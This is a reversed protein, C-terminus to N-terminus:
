KDQHFGSQLAELQTNVMQAYLQTRAYHTLAKGWLAMQENVTAGEVAALSAFAARDMGYEYELMAKDLMKELSQNISYNLYPAKRNVEKAFLNRAESYFGFAENKANETVKAPSDALQLKVYEGTAGGPIGIGSPTGIGFYAILDAPFLIAQSVSSPFNNNLNRSGPDNRHWEKTDPDYWDDSRYMKKVFEFDIEGKEAAASAYEFATAYRYKSGINWSWEEWPRNYSQMASNVLHNTQVLFPAKEGSDGPKRIGYEKANGEFVAINGAADGMNVTGMVGGRPSSELYQQAEAQSTCYQPLYHFYGEIPYSWALPGFIATEASAFGASNMGANASVQGAQPCAVFSPGKDPFAVLIFCQMTEVPVMKTVAVITKGDKTAKGTATFSTCSHYGKVATPNAPAQAVEKLGTEEPYPTDPRAWLQTPYLSIAVLDLVGVDYGMETCGASMGELWDKLGPNFKWLYYAWVEMDKAAGEVGYASVLKSKTIAHNHYILPAAQQAYQYGMEYNSGSVVIVPPMGSTGEAPPIGSSKEPSSSGPGAAWGPVAGILLSVAVFCALLWLVKKSKMSKKLMKVAGKHM